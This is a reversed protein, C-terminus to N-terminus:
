GAVFDVDSAGGKVLLRVGAPACLISEGNRSIRGGARCIGDPCSSERVYATRNEIVVTLSVGNSNLEIERAEFLSYEREGEDTSIVLIAGEARDLWPALFLALALLLVTAVAVADLITLRTRFM